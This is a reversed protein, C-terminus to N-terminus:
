VNANASSSNSINIISIISVINCSVQNSIFADTYALTRATFKVVVAFADVAVTWAGFTLGGNCSRV